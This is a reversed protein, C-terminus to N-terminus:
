RLEPARGCGTKFCEALTDLASRASKSLATSDFAFHLDPM